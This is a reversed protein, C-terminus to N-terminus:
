IKPPVTGEVAGADHTAANEEKVELYFTRSPEHFQWPETLKGGLEQLCDSLFRKEAAVLRAEAVIRDDCYKDWAQHQSGSLELKKLM